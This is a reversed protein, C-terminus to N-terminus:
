ARQARVFGGAALSSAGALRLSGTEFEAAPLAAAVASQMRRIEWGPSHCTLLLWGGPALLEGCDVLLPPLRDDITWPQGKPGHGYSPPDLLLLDYRRGRRVERAVFKPADEVLWRIPAAALRSLEANRRARAVVSKAADVHAVEEAGAAAAALTSGGTYAFLNLTRTAQGAERRAAIRRAIWNWNALQEPFVGLHGHDNPCLDFTLPGCRIRWPEPPQGTWRGAAGDRRDFRLTASSWADTASAPETAAPAPRDVTTQAFRELKRGRGADLFEYDAGFDFVGGGKRTPWALSGGDRPM